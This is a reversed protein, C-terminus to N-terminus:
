LKKKLEPFCKELWVTYQHPNNKLDKELEAITIYKWDEVENPDPVPTDDTVGLYVHDYEYETLGNEFNAKYIFSFSFFTPCKLGMEQKLRKEVSQNIEEGDLPHSCCTNSWLGGSHYKHNARKQLLLEGRSNFIFISFARHLIGLQHVLLKELKGKPNDNEDVLVLLEMM